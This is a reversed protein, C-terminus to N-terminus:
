GVDKATDAAVKAGVAVKEGAVKAGEAVKEAVIPAKEKVFEQTEAVVKQVRPNEWAETAKAKIQEYKDRGARSGLIYGAILGIVFLLKLRM